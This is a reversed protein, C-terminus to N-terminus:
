ALAPIVWVATMAIIALALSIALVWRVNHKKRPVNAAERENVEVQDGHKEM